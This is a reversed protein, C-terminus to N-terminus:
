RRPRRLYTTATWVQLTLGTCLYLRQDGVMVRRVEKISPFAMTLNQIFVEKAGPIRGNDECWGKWTDYLEDRSVWYKQTIRENEDILAGPCLSCCEQVFPIIPSSINRFSELVRLSSQPTTFRNIKRLRALGQLAWNILMGKEAETRLKPRMDWDEKGLFSQGFYSVRLRAEMARGRDPFQPLNNVAILFRVPLEDKTYARQYKQNIPVPDGGTVLLIKEMAMAARQRDPTQADGLVAVLKNEMEGFGFSDGLSELTTACRNKRGIISSLVDAMTSKGAAPRGQFIMLARMSVDPVTCYGAWEQMQDHTDEEGNCLNKIADIAWQSTADEDFAYPLTMYTFFGPTPDYLEIKGNIYENVDLIGNTFAILDVPNPGEVDGIWRPAYGDIPCWRSMAHIIDLVKGRTPKYPQVSIEGAKGISKYRKGDLFGYMVGSLEEGTIVGYCNDKWRIWNSLHYRVTPMEDITFCRDLFQRAINPAIDDNFVDIDGVSRDGHEEIYCKLDDPTLGAMLWQRLDKIGEPPYIGVVSRAVGVLNQMTTELGAKGPWIRKGLHDIHEDNEGIV